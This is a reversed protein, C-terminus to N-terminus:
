GLRWRTSRTAAATFVIIWLLTTASGRHTTSSSEANASIVATRWTAILSDPTQNAAAALSLERGSQAAGTLRAYAGEGGSNIAVALLSRRAVPSLPAPVSYETSDTLFEVCAPDSGNRVCQTWLQWRDPSKGPLRREVVVRREAASYWELAPNEIDHIALASSCAGLDGLLCDRVAQSPSTVLEIYVWGLHTASADQMEIHGGLWLRLEDNLGTLLLMALSSMIRAAADTADARWPLQTSVFTTGHREPDYRNINGIGPVFLTKGLMLLTDSGLNGISDWAVRAGAEVIESFDSQTVVTLTGVRITDTPASLVRERVLRFASDARHYEQRLSDVHTQWDATTQANLTESATVNLWLVCWLAICSLLRRPRCIDRAGRCDCM